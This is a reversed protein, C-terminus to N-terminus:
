KNKKRMDLMPERFITDNLLNKGDSSSFPMFYPLGFSEITCLYYIIMLLGM